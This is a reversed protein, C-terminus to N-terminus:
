VLLYNKAYSKLRLSTPDSQILEQDNSIKKSQAQYYYKLFTRILQTLYFYSLKKLTLNNLVHALIGGERGQREAKGLGYIFPIEKYIHCKPCNILM